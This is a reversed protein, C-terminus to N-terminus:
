VSLNKIEALIKKALTEKITSAPLQHHKVKNLIEEFEPIDRVSITKAKEILQELYHQFANFHEIEETFEPLDRGQMDAKMVAIFDNKYSDNKHESLEIATLTIEMEVDEIKKHYLMHHAIAFSAFKIYKEPIKLRKGINKILMAGLEDHHHHSPWQSKDTKAKGVDHFLIAFNVIPNTSQARKLALITHAGSNGEPHYDKREPVNWLEDIEPLIEKLAGCEKAKLIFKYCNPYALAKELEQWIREKSLHKLDGNQVMDKCLQMTEPAVEFDLQASFRCMRLVRLPDESFHESVHRLIHNKIDNIGNHYDIIEGTQVDQYIANCTFDRRMSDEELTIDPTFIFKFDKHSVGTKIEKRALAYEEQTKPHLFVPFSKGVKKYGEQLMQEETAGIVVFDRDQSTRNLLKDRISGGVQYIRM